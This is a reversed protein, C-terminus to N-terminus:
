APRGYQTVRRSGAVVRRRPQGEPRGALVRDGAAGLATGLATGLLAGFLAIVVSEM